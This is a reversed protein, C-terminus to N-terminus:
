NMWFTPASGGAVVVCPRRAPGGPKGEIAAALHMLSTVGCLVGQAHYVLRVLQRLDTLGRLDIVGDLRPHHDGCGGVQVFQLRGRFHDVVEQYRRHDWWKVTLDHKGGAGIIWFPTDAGTLEHVQSFWGKERRAIPVDGHFATPQINLGLRENLFHIFGHLCHYPLTNARNILPYACEIVEVGAAKEDLPTVLPNHEWLAPCSTRVDTVFQGPYTRHLDRVAATLM